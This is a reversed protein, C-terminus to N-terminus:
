AASASTTSREPRDSRAGDRLLVRCEYLAPHEPGWRQPEPVFLRQRVNLDDGPYTTVPAEEVAVIDGAPDFIEACLALESTAALATALGRRRRHRDGRRRRDRADARGTPRRRPARSGGRAAVRRPLTRRGLVLPLRGTAHVQVRSRTRRASGCSTTSRCTPLDLLRVAPTGRDHRERARRRRPVVGEFELVITGGEDAAPPTLTARYEWSGSPFYGTQPNGDPGRKSGIMADHPLTVPRWEDSSGFIEAFRNHSRRVAWGENWNTRRM